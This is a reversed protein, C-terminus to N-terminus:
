GSRATPCNGGRNPGYRDDAVFGQPWPTFRLPGPESSTRRMIMSQASRQIRSKWASPSRSSATCAMTSVVAILMRSSSAASVSESAPNEPPRQRQDGLAVEVIGPQDRWAVVASIAEGRLPVVVDM